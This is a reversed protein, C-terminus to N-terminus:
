SFSIGCKRYEIRDWILAPATNFDVIHRGARRVVHDKVFVEDILCADPLKCLRENFADVHQKIDDLHLLTTKFAAHHDKLDYVLREYVCTTLHKLLHCSNFVHPVDARILLLWNGYNNTYERKLSKMYTVADPRTHLMGQLRKIKFALHYQQPVGIQNLWEVLGGDFSPHYKATTLETVMPQVSKSMSAPGGVLAEKIGPYKNM